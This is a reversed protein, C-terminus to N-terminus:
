IVGSELEDELESFNRHELEYAGYDLGYLIESATYSYDGMEFEGYTQDWFENFDEEETYNLTKGDIELSGDRLESYKREEFARIMFRAVSLTSDILFERTLLDVKNNREKLEELSKGHSTPSILNRLTGLEQGITSLATSIKNVLDESNYGIAIFAKKIVAGVTPNNSLEVNKDKCIEKGITELLAKANEVAISFDSEFHAEMRDIYIGIESWRGYQVITSRLREM